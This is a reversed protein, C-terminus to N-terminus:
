ADGSPPTLPAPEAVNERAAEAAAGRKGNRSASRSQAGRTSYHRYYNSSRGGGEANLVVGAITSADGATEMALATAEAAHFSTRGWRCVLITGDVLTALVVPDTVPLVPPADIIVVDAAAAAERLVASMATSGLAEAPYVLTPGTQLISLTSSIPVLAERLTARGLLVSTLGPGEAIDFMENLRTRRLDGDILIVRAGDQSMAVALNAAVTTKGDGAAPSTILITRLKTGMDRFRVSTRLARYAEAVSSGAGKAAVLPDDSMGRQRPISGLVPANFFQMAQLPTKITRDLSDLALALALGAILGFVVGVTIDKKPQPAVPTHPLQAKDIVQASIGGLKTTDLQKIVETLAVASANALQQAHGPVGETAKVDILVTNIVVSASIAARIQAPALRNHIEDAIIATARESQIVKTYSSLLDQTLQQGQVAETVTNAPFSVYLRASTSYSKPTSSSVIVGGALGLVLTLAVLPWRRRLLGLFAQLEM